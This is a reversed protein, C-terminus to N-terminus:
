LEKYKKRNFVNSLFASLANKKKTSKKIKFLKIENDQNDSGKRRKITSTISSNPSDIIIINSPLSSVAYDSPRTIILEKPIDLYIFWQFVDSEKQHYHIGRSCAVNMDPDFDTIKIEKNLPYPFDNTHVFSYAISIDEELNIRNYLSTDLEVITDIHEQCFPCVPNTTKLIKNWCSQCLRHICNSNVSNAMKDKCISCEEEVLHCAYHYRNKYFVVQKISNVIVRDTRYKEKYRDCAVKANEPILLKIICLNGKPTLGAKWGITANTTMKNQNITTVICHNDKDIKEGSDKEGSPRYNSNKIQEIKGDKIITVTQSLMNGHAFKEIIEYMTEQGMPSTYMHNPLASLTVFVEGDGRINYINQKKEEKDCDEDDDVTETIEWSSFAVGGDEYYKPHDDDSSEDDGSSDNVYLNCIIGDITSPYTLTLSLLQRFVDSINKAYNRNVTIFTNIADMETRFVNEDIHDVYENMTKPVHPCLEFYNYTNWFSELVNVINKNNETNNVYSIVKIANKQTRRKSYKFEIVYEFLTISPSFLQNSIVIKNNIYEIQYKCYLHQKYIIQYVIKLDARAMQYIDLTIDVDKSIEIQSSSDMNKEDLESQHILLPVNEETCAIERKSRRKSMYLAQYRPHSESINTILIAYKLQKCQSTIIKRYNNNNFIFLYNNSELKVLGPLWKQCKFFYWGLLEHNWEKPYKNINLCEIKYQELIEEDKAMIHDEYTIPLRQDIDYKLYLLLDSTVPHNIQLTAINAERTKKKILISKQVLNYIEDMIKTLINQNHMLVKFDTLDEVNPVRVIKRILNPDELNKNDAEVNTSNIDITIYKDNLTLCINITDDIYNLVVNHNKITLDCLKDKPLHPIISGVIKRMLLIDHKINIHYKFINNELWSDDLNNWYSLNITKDSKDGLKSPENCYIPKRGVDSGRKTIFIKVNPQRYNGSTRKVTIIDKLDSYIFYQEESKTKGNYIQTYSKNNIGVSLSIYKGGYIHYDITIRKEVGPNTTVTLQYDNLEEKIEEIISYRNSDLKDILRDLDLIARSEINLPIDLKFLFDIIEDVTNPVNAKGIQDIFGKQIIGENIISPINNEYM